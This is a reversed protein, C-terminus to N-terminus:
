TLRVGLVRNLNGNVISRAKEPDNQTWYRDICKRGLDCSGNWEWATVKYYEHKVWSGEKSYDRESHCTLHGLRIGLKPTPSDENQPIWRLPIRFQNGARDHVTKSLGDPMTFTVLNGGSEVTGPMWKGDLLVEQHSAVVKFTTPPKPLGELKGAHYEHSGDDQKILAELQALVEQRVIQSDANANVKIGDGIASYSKWYFNSWGATYNSVIQGVSCDQIWCDMARKAPGAGPKTQYYQGDIWIPSTM